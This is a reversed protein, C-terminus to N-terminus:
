QEMLLNRLFTDWLEGEDPRAPRGFPGHWGYGSALHTLEHLVIVLHGVVANKPNLGKGLSAAWMNICQVCWKGNGVHSGMPSRPHKMTGILFDYYDVLTM